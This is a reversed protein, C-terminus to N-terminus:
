GFLPNRDKALKARIKEYMAGQPYTVLALDGNALLMWKFESRGEDSQFALLLEQVDHEDARTTQAILYGQATHAPLDDM